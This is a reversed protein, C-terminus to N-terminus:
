AAMSRRLRRIAFFAGGAVGVALIVCLIWTGTGTQVTSSSYFIRVDGNVWASNVTFTYSESSLTLGSVTATEKITYTGPVMSTFTAIGDSGTVATTIATNSSNYLTYTIGSVPSTKDKAVKKVTVKVHEIALDIEGSIYGSVSDITFAHAKGDAAYTSPVFTVKYSYSGAALASVDAVGYANTTATLVQTGASNTVTLVAGSIATTGNCALKITKDARTTNTALNTADFDYPTTPNVWANTVTFEYKKESLTQGSVTATEKIYFNGLTLGVFRAIGTSDTTASTVATGSSNYLTYTVGCTSGKKVTVTAKEVPLDIYGSITGSALIEFSHAKGDVAYTEPVTSVKYSYSGPALSSVDATGSSGTTVSLVAIGSSNTVTLTAGVIPTSTNYMLAITKTARTTPSFTETTSSSSDWLYPTEANVWNAGVTLTYTDTSLDMGAITATEKIVYTGRKVGTFRAIGNADTVVSSVVSGQGGIPAASKCAPCETKGASTALGVTSATAGTGACASTYHYYTNATTTYVLAHESVASGTGTYNYMTYTVGQVVANAANVKKVAFQTQDVTFDLEGSIGSETVILSRVRNDMSYGDPVASLKYTYSGPALSAVSLNGATDSAVTLAATGAQTYVTISVGSVPTTGHKVTLLDTTREDTTSGGASAGGGAAISVTTTGTTTGEDTVTFAYKDTPATYGTPLSTISFEYDGPLLTNCVSYASASEPYIDIVAEVATQGKKYVEIKAGKIPAGSAADTIKIVVESAFSKMPLPESDVIGQEGGVFAIKQSNSRGDSYIGYRSLAFSNAMVVEPTIGEFDSEPVYIAFDLSGDSNPENAAFVEATVPLGDIRVETYNGTPMVTLELVYDDDIPTWMTCATIEIGGSVNLPTQDCAENYMFAYVAFAREYSALDAFTHNNNFNVVYQGGTFSIDLKKQSDALTPYASPVVAAADVGGNQGNTEMWAYLAMATAYKLEDDTLGTCKNYDTATQSPYGNQLITYIGDVVTQSLSGVASMDANPSEGVRNLSYGLANPDENCKYWTVSLADNGQLFYQTSSTRATVGSVTEPLAFAAPICCLLFAVVLLTALIRHVKKM